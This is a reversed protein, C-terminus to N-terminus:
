CPEDPIRLAAELDRRLNALRAPESLSRGHADTVQIIDHALGQETEIRASTVILGQQAITELVDYLLGLRDRAEVHILTSGPHSTSDFSIQAPHPSPPALFRHRSCAWVSAFRPPESLAGELLFNMEELRSPSAARAGEFETVTFTDLVVNDLRTFVEAQLINLRVASFAAAAKALLGQRDWTCLMVRTSDQQPSQRWAVFPLTSPMNPETVQRFFGHVTEIGWILDAETVRQWYYAPMGDFHADLEDQALGGMRQQDLRARFWAQREPWPLSIEPGSVPM